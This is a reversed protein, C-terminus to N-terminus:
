KIRRSTPRGFPIAPIRRTPRPSDFGSAIPRGHLIFPITPCLRLKGPMAATWARVIFARHSRIRSRSGTRRGAQKPLNCNEWRDLRAPPFPFAGYAAMSERRILPGHPIPSIPKSFNPATPHSTTSTSHRWRTKSRFVEGGETSVSRVVRDKGQWVRFYIRPGDTLLRTNHVLTGLHTLQSIRRVRPPPVFPRFIAFAVVLAALCLVSTLLLRKGSLPAPKSAAGDTIRRRRLDTEAATGKSSTDTLVDPAASNLEGPIVRVQTTLRYGRGPITEIYRADGNGASLTKRLVFINQTLNGEEVFTDPWVAQLLDEKLVVQDGNRVLVLLIEFAKLQLPVPKRDRLLIRKAPDLQFPGFEYLERGKNAM